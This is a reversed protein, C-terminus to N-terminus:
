KVFIEESDLRQEEDFESASEIVAAVALEKPTLPRAAYLLWILTRM